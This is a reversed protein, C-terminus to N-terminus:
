LKEKVTAVDAPTVHFGANQWNAYVYSLVAATEEDTLKQPPMFSDYTKGNVKIKGDMGYLMIEISRVPDENLYDSAAVPPFNKGDGTGESLHCAACVANYIEKGLQLEEDSATNKSLSIGSHEATATAAGSNDQCSFLLLPLLFLPRFM